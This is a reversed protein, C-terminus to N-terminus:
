AIFTSSPACIVYLRNECGAALIKMVIEVQRAWHGDLLMAQCYALPVVTHCRGFADNRTLRKSPDALLRAVLKRVIFRTAWPVEGSKAAARVM